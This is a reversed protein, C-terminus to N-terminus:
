AWSGTGGGVGVVSSVAGAQIHGLLVGNKDFFNINLYPGLANYEFSATDSYLRNLDGTFLSGWFAGGGPITVGGAQGDFVKGQPGEVRFQQYFIASIVNGKVDYRQEQNAAAQSRVKPATEPASSSSGHDGMSASGFADNVFITSSGGVDLPQANAVGAPVMVAAATLTSAAAAKVLSRRANGM